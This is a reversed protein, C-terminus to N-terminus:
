AAPASKNNNQFSEGNDLKGIDLAEKMQVEELSIIAELNTSELNGSSSSETRGKDTELDVYYLGPVIAALEKELRDIEEGVTRIVGRGFEMMALDMANRLTEDDPATTCAATRIQNYLSNRGLSGLYKSVVRDGSWQIEAKFRYVGDGIEESKPDIVALVMKDSKLHKIIADHQEPRMAQGILFKKNNRILMVAVAGMLCGVAISGVADYVPDGTIYTMYSAVGAIGLGAVAGADEALIAATTPDNSSMFYKRLTQGQIKAGTRLAGL